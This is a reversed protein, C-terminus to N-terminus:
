DPFIIAMKEKLTKASFPKVIYNTVGAEIASVIKEKEGEATVFLVPIDKLKSDAKIFRLLEIGSMRPMNWDTIIFDVKSKKIITLAKIGDEAEEIDKYGLSKLISRTLARMTALDDVILLKSDTDLM